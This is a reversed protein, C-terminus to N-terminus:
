STSSGKAHSLRPGFFAENMTRGIVLTDQQQKGGSQWAVPQWTRDDHSMSQSYEYFGYAPHDPRQVDLRIPQGAAHNTITCQPRKVWRPEDQSPSAALERYFHRPGRQQIMAGDSGLEGHFLFHETQLVGDTM